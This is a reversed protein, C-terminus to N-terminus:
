EFRAESIFFSFLNVGSTDNFFTIACFKNNIKVEKQKFYLLKLNFCILIFNLEIERHVNNMFMGQDCLKEQKKRSSIGLFRKFPRLTMKVVKTSM